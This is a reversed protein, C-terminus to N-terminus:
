SGTGVLFISGFLLFVLVYLACMGYGLVLGAVALAGGGEGTRRVQGLAVHGLVVPVLAFGLLGTVLAAIALGNTRARPPAYPYVGAPTGHGAPPTGYAPASAGYPSAPPGSSPAPTGYSPAPTGYPSAPTGYVPAPTGYPSAPTGYEPGAIGPDPSPPPPPVPTSPTPDLPIADTM